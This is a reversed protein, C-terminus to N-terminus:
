KHKNILEVIHKKPVAGIVTDVLKGNKFFAITPISMVGFEGAYKQNADVDVKGFFVNPTEAALEEIVPAIMKCPTCWIAWFDVVSLGSRELVSTKFDADTINKLNEKEIM